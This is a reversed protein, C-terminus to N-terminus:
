FVACAYLLWKIQKRETDNTRRYRIFLAVACVVVLTLLGVIWMGALLEVTDERLVGIPNDFALDNPTTLQQGLTSMLVFLAAWVFAAVSVWRWRPTPPQGNPFLLLILLLPFILLLWSWNSIWVMLLIPVTPEPSSPALNEIYSAIPGGVVYLGVPVM